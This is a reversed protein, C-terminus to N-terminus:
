DSIEFMAKPGDKARRKVEDRYDALANMVPTIVDEVNVNAADEAEFSPLNGSEYVGFASLTNFIYRSVQLVLPAKFGDTKLYINAASVLASLENVATATDFSDCM